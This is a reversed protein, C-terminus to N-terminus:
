TLRQLFCTRSDSHVNGASARQWHLNCCVEHTNGTLNPWYPRFLHNVYRPKAGKWLSFNMGNWDKKEKGGVDVSRDVPQTGPNLLCRFLLLSWSFIKGRLRLNGYRLSKKVARQFARGPSLVEWLNQRLTRVASWKYCVQTLNWVRAALWFDMRCELGRLNTCPELTHSYFSLSAKSGLRAWLQQLKDRNRYCSSAPLIEVEGPPSALGDCTVGRLKTLNGWCNARVWKYVQTFLSVTLTFHRVWSCLVIDGALARVRVVREPTSRTLWSAMAGGLHSYSVLIVEMRSHSYHQRIRFSCNRMPLCCVWLWVQTSFM